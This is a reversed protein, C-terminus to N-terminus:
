RSLIKTNKERFLISFIAARLSFNPGYRRHARLSDRIFFLFRLIDSPNETSKEQSWKKECLCGFLSFFFYARTHCSCCHAPAYHLLGHNHDSTTLTCGYIYLYIYIDREREILICFSQALRPGNLQLPFPMEFKRCIAPSKNKGEPHWRAPGKTLDWWSPTMVERISKLLVWNLFFLPLCWSIWLVFWRHDDLFFGPVVSIQWIKKSTKQPNCPIAYYPSVDVAPLFTSCMRRVNTHCFNDLGKPDM